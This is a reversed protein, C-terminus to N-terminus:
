TTSLWEATMDPSGWGAFPPVWGVTVAECSRRGSRYRGDPTVSASSTQGNGFGIQRFQPLLCLSTILVSNVLEDLQSALSTIEIFQPRKGITAAAIRDVDEDLQGPFSSISILQKSKSGATMLICDLYKGFEVPVRCIHFHM